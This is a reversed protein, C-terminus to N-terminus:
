CVRLVIVTLYEISFFNATATWQALMMISHEDMVTHATHVNVCHLFFGTVHNHVKSAITAHQM